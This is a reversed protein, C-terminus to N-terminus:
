RLSSLVELGHALLFDIIGIYFGIILSIVIVVGTLRITEERTPWTVKKLEGFLNNGIKKPDPKQM